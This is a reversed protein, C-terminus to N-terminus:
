AARKVQAKLDLNIDFPQFWSQPVAGVLRDADPPGWTRPEYTLPEAKLDIVPDVIRWQAEIADQRAFLSTDGRMADGLLREYPLMDRAQNKSAWLEVEQGLMPEGPKKIRVGLAIVTTDPGLRFRLYESSSAHEHYIDRVPRKLQVRLEIANLALCKGARIFFPVDAWRATDINLKIAAFTEVKSDRAVGPEDRYGRFQGRVIHEPDIPTIAKLLRTKEDRIAESDQGVPADMALIATLQLIHNQIVDRIAGTEEYFKGRGRVGFDEAMIIQVHEVHDRNLVTEPLVNAFRFYMLNLVPEKGLYHDIRFIRAEPFLQLLTQNLARASALDRGFPKELVVRAERACRSKGLGIVVQPFASPPIALYYLPREAAGLERCLAEFTAPDAYNGHVYHLLSVLKDFASQNFDGHHELSDRVRACLRDLTWESRAVCIVPVNLVGRRTMAQLAPFVEKFVLDGTAGFIVLADSHLPTTM